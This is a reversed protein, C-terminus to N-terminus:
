RFTFPNNSSVMMTKRRGMRDLALSPWIGGVVFMLLIFGGLISSTRGTLGVSDQLVVPIYYVVLSIGSAQNMFQIFWALFIRYGRRVRDRKFISFFGQGQQTGISELAIAQQIASRKALIVPDAPDKDYILCLVEIAEEERGQNFLWRPSEPLAFVLFIVGIAFLAQVSIPLRWAVPGGVYSM